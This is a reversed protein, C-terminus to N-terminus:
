INIFELSLYILSKYKSYCPGFKLDLDFKELIELENILEEKKDKKQPSYKSKKRLVSNKNM